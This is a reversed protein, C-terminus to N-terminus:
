PVIGGSVAFAVFAMLIGGIILRVLWTLTGEISTLRTEINARLVNGVEDRTESKALRTEMEDLRRDTRARWEQETM